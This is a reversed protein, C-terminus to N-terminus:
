QIVEAAQPGPRYIQSKKGGPLNIEAAMPGPLYVQCAVAFGPGVAHAEAIIPSEATHAHLADDPAVSYTQTVTPSEAEHGHLADDVTVVHVQTIAPSETEHAHLCDEPAIGHAQTIGPSEAAHDHSCDAPAIVHVQTLAPSEAAHSHTADNPAIEAPASSSGFAAYAFQRATADPNGGAGDDWDLTFDTANFSSFDAAAAYGSPSGSDILLLCQDQEMARDTESDAAGDTDGMWSAARNSAGSAAGVSFRNHDIVSTTAAACFSALFVAEPLFTTTTAKTGATSTKQTEVGVQYNGGKLCLAWCGKVGITNTSFNLTFGDSDLSTLSALQNYGNSALATIAILNGSRETRRTDMTSESDATSLGIVAQNSATAFGLSNRIHVDLISSVIIAASFVLIFDPQFGVGTVAHSGTGAATSFEKVTANTIGNDLVLYHVKIGTTATTVNITFQGAAFSVLDFAEQVTGTAAANNAYVELLKANSQWRDAVSSATGDQSTYGFSARASSSTGMGFSFRLGTSLGDTTQRTTWCIIAKPTLSGNSLSVTQNGTATNLTFTGVECAM